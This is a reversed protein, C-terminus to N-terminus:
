AESAGVLKEVILGALWGGGGVAAGVVLGDHSVHFRLLGINVPRHAAMAVGRSLHRM